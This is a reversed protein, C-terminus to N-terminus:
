KTQNPHMTTVILSSNNNNKIKFYFYLHLFNLIKSQTYPENKIKNKEQRPFSIEILLFVKKEIM